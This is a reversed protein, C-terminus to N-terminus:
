SMRQMKLPRTKRLYSKISNKKRKNNSKLSLIATLISTIATVGVMVM